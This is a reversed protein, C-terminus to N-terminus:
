RGACRIWGLSRLRSRGRAALTLSRRARIEHVLGAEIVDAIMAIAAADPEEACSRPSLVEEADEGIEPLDARDVVGIGGRERRAARAGHATTRRSARRGRRDLGDHDRRRRRSVELERARRQDGAPVHEDLLRQRQIGGLAGLEDLERVPEAADQHDAVDREVM